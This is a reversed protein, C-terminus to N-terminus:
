ERYLNLMLDDPSPLPSEKAFAFAEDIEREIGREMADMENQSLVEEQILHQKFRKIPCKDEWSAIEEETRHGLKTDTGPGNHGRLRYTLCEIFAPGNGERIHKTALAATEYVEIVDNGNISASFLLDPDARHYLTECPHRASIHSCVAWQNNEIIFLIPLRKLMAFNVSEYFIGEDLAGDGFFVTTVADESRMKKAMAM